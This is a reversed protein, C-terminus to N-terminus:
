KKVVPVKRGLVSPRRNTTANTGAKPEVKKAEPNHTGSNQPETEFPQRRLAAARRQRTPLACHRGKTARRQPNPNEREGRAPPFVSVPMDQQKKGAQTYEPCPPHMLRAPM